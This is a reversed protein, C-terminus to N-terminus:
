KKGSQHELWIIRNEMEQLKAFRDKDFIEHEERTFMISRADKDRADIYIRLDKLKDEVDKLHQDHHAIAIANVKTDSEQISRQLGAYFGMFVLFASGTAIISGWPTKKLEALEPKIDSNIAELATIKAQIAAIERISAEIRPDLSTDLYTIPRENGENAM